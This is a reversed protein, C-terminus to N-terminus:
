ARPPKRAQGPAAKSAEIPLVLSTKTGAEVEAVIPVQKGDDLTAILVQHDPEVAIPRELPSALDGEGERRIAVLREEAVGEPLRLSVLGIKGRLEGLKYKIREARGVNAPDKAGDELEEDSLRKAELM